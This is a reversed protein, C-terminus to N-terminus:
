EQTKLSCASGGDGPGTLRHLRHLLHLRHLRYAHRGKKIQLVLDPPPPDLQLTQVLAEPSIRTGAFVATPFSSPGPAGTLGGPAGPPRVPEQHLRQRVHKVKGVM